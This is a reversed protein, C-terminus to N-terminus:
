RVEEMPEVMMARHAGAIRTLIVTAHNEGRLGLQKRVVEPILDVGRKKITIAGVNRQKLYQKLKKVNLPLVDLVRYARALSIGDRAPLPRSTSLYAIRPSVLQIDTQESIAGLMGLLHARIVAGDPELLFDGLETVDSLAQLPPAGHSGDPIGAITTTRLRGTTPAEPDSAAVTAEHWPGGTRDTTSDPNGGHWLTAEVVDGDVSTWTATAGPPIDRHAIGPGVKVGVLRVRDRLAWIESLAPLYQEPDNIRAGTGTRRAPDAYIADVHSLDALRGDGATVSARPYAALNHAAFVATAPDLEYAHVALGAAALAMADVGLGCTLDAVATIGGVQFRRARLAAVSWRTAQELGPRTLLMTTAHHGLKLEATTRLEALSSLAAAIDSSAGMGRLATVTRLPDALDRATLEDLLRLTAPQALSRALADDMVVNNDPLYRNPAIPTWRGVGTKTVTRASWHATFTPRTVCTQLIPPTM